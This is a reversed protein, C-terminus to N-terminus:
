TLIATAPVPHTRHKPLRYGMVLNQVFETVARHSRNISGAIDAQVAHQRQLDQSAFDAIGSTLAPEYLFGLRSGREIM